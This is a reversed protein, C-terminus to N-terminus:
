SKPENSALWAEVYEAAACEYAQIFPARLDHPLEAGFTKAYTALAAILFRTAVAHMGHDRLTKRIGQPTGPLAITFGIQTEVIQKVIETMAGHRMANHLEDADVKTTRKPVPM